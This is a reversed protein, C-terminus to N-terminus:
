SYYCSYKRFLIPLFSLINLRSLFFFMRIFFSNPELTLIDTNKLEESQIEQMFISIEVVQGNHNVPLQGLYNKIEKLLFQLNQIQLIWKKGEEDLVIQTVAKFFLEKIRIGAYPIPAFLRSSILFLDVFKDSFTRDDM